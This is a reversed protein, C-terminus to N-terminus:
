RNGQKGKTPKIKTILKDLQKQTLKAAAFDSPTYGGAQPSQCHTIINAIASAFTQTLRAITTSTHISPNYNWSLQLKDEAIWGNIELKYCRNNFRSRQNSVPSKIFNAISNDIQGLYNFKVEAAPLNQLRSRVQQDNTLYRLLGYSIGNHPIQRLQEKISKLATAPHRDNLILRVSFIITFWGVTRSLDVDAFLDERGHGELDLLLTNSNTWQTFSQVIATLLIDNIQTHYYRPVEELLARTQEISLTIIQESTATNNIQTIPYDVPLAVSQSVNNVWYELDALIDPSRAYDVLRNGWDQFATTKAPLQLKEGREVQQYAAFFDDILVRWSIGDIVLHHIIFLLSDHQQGRKFLVCQFLSKSLNLCRQAQASIQHIVAQQDAVLSLDVICLATQDPLTYFQQWGDDKVFRMRLADHHILLQQLTTRVLESKLPTTELLISQNYHHLESHNEFFWHQIPTLLVNGTVIGQQAQIQPTTSAVTALAAITQHQFLLRPTLNLGIQNAKAVIQISLISDGGLEFFNDHIGVSVGLVESWIKVLTAENATCPPTKTANIQNFVPTPLAKRDVKGNNTLPLAPLTVFVSPIMYDPLKSELFQRIESHTIKSEPQLVIYAILQQRDSNNQVTAVAQQIHPHQTLITEIEALEVRFGRIKVQRDLRGLYEINGDARYRALDGTKYIRSEAIANGRNFPNPIFKEATLEPKNLYGRALSIGGIYLEGPIGVPVPQLYQDLIYLQINDIPRGIPVTNAINDVSIADYVCCGVVTETPGYENIIKARPDRDCWFDLHHKLLADGGVVFANTSQWNHKDALLQSLIDLHAPTSKVLSFHSNASLLAGLIEIERDEPILVVTKGVLLPAYLSTITADFGISSQVPAGCGQEVNYATMAWNLYNTLGQHTLLTGKPTGTSGSTYIVYALNQGSTMNDPNTSPFQAIADRDSDILIAETIQTSHSCILRSVQADKLIYEIRDRPLKPDIPVYAGGAKLIGLLGIVLELSRPLCIGVLVDPKVGLSRLYHALQNAKCNLERYTLQQNEFSVAINDPTREVQAEFLQHIGLLPYEITTKNWEFLIQNQEIDSLIPLESLRQQPDGVIGVLLVQFHQLMRAITDADFLDTSYEVVALIGDSREALHWTMDFKTTGSDIWQQELHLGPIALEPAIANQLQYAENQVQFMVQFLPNHSLSRQPQLEEVLKAFPLDQHKYAGAAVDRVRQLLTDFKPNGALNTRLVLTNVFFGILPEVEVWNRNAIPSGVAIDNQGTYRHLLVKFAALLLMFLTVGQQRSLAKLAQSLAASFYVSQTASRFTPVPLRPRNTPLELVSLDQLQQKWYALQATLESDQLWRRQWVAFDVYQIPLEPLVDASQGNVFARYLSALERLIVGRSWGDAVLHHLTLLLVFKQSALRLLMLRILPPQTLDFARQAEQKALDEVEADLIAEPLGSLDVIPLSISTEVIVQRPQGDIAVFGTRLSHHRQVITDFCRELISIDLVGTFRWAIAINYAASDPELQHLFWLREQALSIPLEDINERRGIALKRLQLQREFRSRKEPSLAAIRKSLDDFGREDMM